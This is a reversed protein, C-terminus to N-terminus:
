YPNFVVSKEYDLDLPHYEEVANYIDEIEQLVDIDSRKKLGKEEWLEWRMGSM